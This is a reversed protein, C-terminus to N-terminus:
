DDELEAKEALSKRARNVRSKVTGVACDEIEAVEAYSYGLAGIMTVARRQHAPLDRLSGAIEELAMHDYQNGIVSPSGHVQLQPLIAGFTKGRRAESLFTNRLITFLWALLNSGHAFKDRNALAKLITEQVLDDARSVDRSLACAFAKLNPLFRVLDRDFEEEVKQPSAGNRAGSPCKNEATM